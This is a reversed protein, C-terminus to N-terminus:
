DRGGHAGDGVLGHQDLDGPRAFAQEEEMSAARGDAADKDFMAIFWSWDYEDAPLHRPEPRDELFADDFDVVFMSPELNLDIKDGHKGDALGYQNLDGPGACAEEVMSPEGDDAADKGFMAIFWSEYENAPVHRPELRDELFLADDFEVVFMGPEVNLGNGGSHAGDGFGYQDLDGLGARAQEEEEMEGAYKFFMAIFEHEDAPVHRPEPRDELLKDDFDDVAVGPELNLDIEGGHAGDGLGYQDLDGPGARADEEEMSAAGGDDADKDIFLSEYEDAPVHRPEPRDELLADFGDVAMDLELDLDIEGSHAGDGLGYQDLNGPGARAEEEMEDAYKFFMAIFEQEDALVYRPEPRDELLADDFDDVVMSPELNLDIEGSHAGDGLGYHDLDGPGVRAEEEEEDLEDAYKFFMAIFEHEEAPVHRPEPRDELLADNDVVMGPEINLDIEGGHTGDALGYQDLDGPGARAEEEMSAAGGYNADDDDVPPLPQAHRHATADMTGSIQKGLGHSSSKTSPALRGERQVESVFSSKTTV